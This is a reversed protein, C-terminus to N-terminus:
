KVEWKKLLLSLFTNRDLVKEIKACNGIGWTDGFLIVTKQARTVATYLLNRHHQWCHQKHIIACVCPFESGQCKHITLAYALELHNGTRPILEVHSTNGSTDGKQMANQKGFLVEIHQKTIKQVIGQDGNMIDLKYDNKTQIVKDGPYLTIKKHAAVPEVDIGYLMKQMVRQIALNLSRTGLIGKHTPTILQVDYVPSYGIDQFGGNFMDIINQLLVQPEKEKVIYWSAPHEEPAVCETKAVKGHLIDNCNHKLTGSQRICQTLITSPILSSSLMDRLIYGPGVPPLQNHDGILVIATNPNLALFLRRALYVDLMSAEDIIIVDTELPNEENVTFVNNGRAGLTKHITSAKFGALEEIRKAAKGTPACLTVHLDRSHCIRLIEKITYTKGTGASGSIISTGFVMFKKVASFQKKNLGEGKYLKLDRAPFHANAEDHMNEFCQALFTEAEFITKLGFITKKGKLTMMELEGSMVVNTLRASIVFKSDRRDMILLKNAKKILEEEEIWCHGEKDLTERVTYIIGADVREDSDKKIRMKLAIKDSKKFGFGNIDQIMLYPNQTLIAKADTGYKETLLTIEHHTLDFGALWVSIANMEINAKWVKQFQMTVELSISAISAIKEPHNLLVEEFEQGFAKALKAAKVPGIGKIEKNKAIFNALGKADCPMEPIVQEVQFQHGYKSDTVHHGSLTVQDGQKVHINGRFRIDFCVPEFHGELSNNEDKSSKEKCDPRLIGATWGTHEQGPRPFIIRLVQGTIRVQPSKTKVKSKATKMTKIM